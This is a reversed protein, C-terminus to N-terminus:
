TCNTQAILKETAENNSIFNLLQLHNITGIVCDSDDVVAVLEDIELIRSVLGLITDKTIRRFKKFMKQDFVIEDSLRYNRDVVKKM